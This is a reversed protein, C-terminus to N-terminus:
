AQRLAMPRQAEQGQLVVAPAGTHGFRDRAEHYAPNPGFFSRSMQSLQVVLCTHHDWIERPIARKLM